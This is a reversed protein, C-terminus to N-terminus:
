PRDLGDPRPLIIWGERRARDRQTPAPPDVRAPDTAIRALLAAVIADLADDRAVALARHEAAIRLWPARAGLGDLIAARRDERGRGKYGADPLGFRRLAVAPYTEFVRGDAPGSRDRVGMRTLLGICRFAPVGILDSSVSLPWRGMVERVVFDTARFRLADRRAPGWPDTPAGPPEHANAVFAAFDDPWGFPSDIGTADSEAHRALLQADDAGVGLGLVEAGSADWAIECWGTKEPASALDIGLSRRM